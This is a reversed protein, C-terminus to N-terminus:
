KNHYENVIKIIEDRTLIELEFKEKISIATSINSIIVNKINPVGFEVSIDKSLVYGISQTKFVCSDKYEKVLYVECVKYADFGRFEMNEM